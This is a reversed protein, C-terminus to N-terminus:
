KSTTNKNVMGAGTILTAIGAGILMLKWYKEKYFYAALAGTAAGVMASFGLVKVAIPIEIGENESNTVAEM